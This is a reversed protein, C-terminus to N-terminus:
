KTFTVMLDDNAYANNKFSRRLMNIDLDNFNSYIRKVEDEDFHYVRMGNECFGPMTEDKIDIIVEYRNLQKAHFHRYDRISRLILFAKAGKKLVRYIEKANQEIQAKTGYMLVGICCLGDFFDDEFPLKELSAVELVGPLNHEKLLSKAQKIAEQSIDCGYAKFGNQALYYMHRGSGCGLDLIREGGKYNRVMFSVLPENPYKSRSFSNQYLQEWLKTNENM